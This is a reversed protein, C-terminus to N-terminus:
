ASRMCDLAGESELRKSSAMRALRLSTAVDKRTMGQAARPSPPTSRSPLFIVRPEGVAAAKASTPQRKHIPSETKPTPNAAALAMREELNDRLHLYLEACTYEEPDISPDVRRIVAAPESSGQLEAIRGARDARRRHAEEIEYTEKRLQLQLQSEGDHEFRVKDAESYLSYM